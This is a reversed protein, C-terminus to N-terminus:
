SHSSLPSLPLSCTSKWLVQTPNRSTMYPLKDDVQTELADPARNQGGSAGACVHLYKCVSM